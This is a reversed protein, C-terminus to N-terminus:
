KWFTLLAFAYAMPSLKFFAPILVLLAFGLFGLFRVNTWVSRDRTQVRVEKGVLDAESDHAPPLHPASSM